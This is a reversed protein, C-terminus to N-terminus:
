EQVPISAVSIETQHVLVNKQTVVAAKTVEETEAEKSLEVGEM